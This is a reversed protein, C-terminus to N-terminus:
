SAPSWNRAKEFLFLEQGLVDGIRERLALGAREAMGVFYRPAIDIRAESGSFPGGRPEIHISFLARGGYRLVRQTERLYHLADPERLHTFVSAALAFDVSEADAPFRYDTTALRGGPNYFASQGDFHHFQFRGGSRPTVHADCWAINAKFIDFGIYRLEPLNILWRAIRGCGCGIDLVTANSAIFSCIIQSWADGVAFFNALDHSGINAMLAPSPLPLVYRGGPYRPHNDAAAHLAVSTPM